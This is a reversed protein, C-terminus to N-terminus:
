IKLGLEEPTNIGLEQMTPKCEKIIYDYIEGGGGSKDKIMEFLRVTMAYDNLRRCARLAASVIKPEPVLDHGHLENLGKRLEWDDIDPRNFYAEWRADFVDDPEQVHAFRKSVLAQAVVVQRGNVHKISRRVAPLLQRFMEFRKGKGLKPQLKNWGAGLINDQHCIVVIRDKLCRCAYSFQMFMTVKEVMQIVMKESKSLGLSRLFKVSEAEQVLVHISEIINNELNSQLTHIIETMRAELAQEVDVHFSTQTRELLWHMNNRYNDYRFDVVNTILVLKEREDGVVNRKEGTENLVCKGNRLIAGNNTRQYKRYRFKECTEM